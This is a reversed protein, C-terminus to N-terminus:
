KHSNHCAKCNAAKKLMDGAKPDGKVAGDGAKVLAGTLKKWSDAEGKKPKNKSLSVLMSQLEKKEEDSATGGAVKKLLGGKFAKKMVDKTSYKAATDDAVTDDAATPVAIMCVMVMIGSFLAAVRVSMLLSKLEDQPLSSPGSYGIMPDILYGMSLRGAVIQSGGSFFQMGPWSAIKSIAERQLLHEGFLFM